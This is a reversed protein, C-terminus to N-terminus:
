TDSPAPKAQTSDACLMPIQQRNTKGPEIRLSDDYTTCYSAQLRLRYRGVPLLLSDPSPLQGELVSSGAPTLVSFKAREPTSSVALFGCARPSLSVSTDGTQRVYVTDVARASVCRDLSRISAAVIYTGPRLTDSSWKGRGVDVGNVSLVAANPAVLEVM